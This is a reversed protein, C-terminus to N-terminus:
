SSIDCIWDVFHQVVVEKVRYKHLFLDNQFGIKWRALSPPVVNFVQDNRSKWINWAACAFNEVFCPVIFDRQARLFRDSM